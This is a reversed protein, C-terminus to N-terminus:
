SAASVAAAVAWGVRFRGLGRSRAGAAAHIGAQSVVREVLVVDSVDDEVPRPCAHRREGSTHRRAWASWETCCSIWSRAAYKLAPRREANASERM